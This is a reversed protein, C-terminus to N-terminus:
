KRKKNKKVTKKVKKVPKKSKKNAAAKKQKKIEKKKEIVKKPKKESKEEEEPIEDWKVKLQAELREIEKKMNEIDASSIKEQMVKGCETCKYQNEMAEEVTMKVFDHDACTFYVGEAAEELMRKKIQELKKTKLGIVLLRAHKINFTWYYIYWGKQRDKKRISYVLNHDSLRYLMNRVQNVTKNLEEALTFESVNEKYLLARVIQVTDHGALESALEEIFADTLKM